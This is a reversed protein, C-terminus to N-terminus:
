ALPWAIDDVALWPAHAVVSPTAGAFTRVDRHLHSQDVYGAEAAVQAADIGDALRHAAHDFRALMAARKPGMGIQDRFRSWLRKRSWGTDATLDEVTLRGHAGIIQRWAHVVEPEAEPGLRHRAALEADVLAFREEWSAAACLDAEIREAGDGWLDALDVVADELAAAPVGLVSRAVLPPVRVQICRVGSGYARIRGPTLPIALSGRHRSGHADDVRVSGDGVDLVLTVAPVPLPWLDVVGVATRHDFGAMTVGPVRSPHRPVEIDWLDVPDPGTGASAM